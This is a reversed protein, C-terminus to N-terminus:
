PRGATARRRGRGPDRAVPLAADIRHLRLRRRRARGDPRRGGAAAIIAHQSFVDLGSCLPGAVTVPGLRAAAPRARSRTPGPAGARGAGAAARPPRRRRPHRGDLGRRDQPRRRTGPLRGGARRPVPRARAPAPCRGPAPGGALGRRDGALGSGTPGPRAVGRPDRVPHRSRRRCRRAPRDHRGAPRAPRGGAVDGRRARRARVRRPRQLGRLCAARAARPAALRGRPAAAAVLDRADMGFKGAGDDGVLRVRELRADETVAARLLVPVRRGAGAAIAELRALEGPSEVTVARIGAAVAAACSRTASARSRDDRHPGPRHRRPARDGARRGLRRGRGTRSPRPPRRRRARSQGQGRLRPGRGGAPRGAAVRGPPRDVDLDYVYLPTGFGSALEEPALGGLRGARLIENRAPPRGRRPAIDDDTPAPRPVAPPLRVLSM